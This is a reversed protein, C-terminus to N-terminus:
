PLTSSVEDQLPHFLPAETATNHNSAIMSKEKLTSTNVAVSVAAANSSSTPATTMNAVDQKTAWHSPPDLKNHDDNGAGGAVNVSQLGDSGAAAAAAADEAGSRLFAADSSAVTLLLFHAVANFNM